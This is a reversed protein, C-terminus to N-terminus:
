DKREYLLYYNVKEAGIYKYKKADIKCDKQSPMTTLYYKSMSNNNDWLRVQYYRELNGTIETNNFFERKDKANSTCINIDANKELVIKADIFDHYFNKHRKCSHSQEWGFVIFSLLLLINLVRFLKQGGFKKLAQQMPNVFLIAFAISFYIIAPFIYYDHQKPSLELPISGSLGILLFLWFFKSLELGLPKVRAVVFIIFSIIIISSTDVLLQGLLKFHEGGGRTGSLSDMIQHQFYVSFYHHSPEYLYLALTYIAIFFLSFLYYRFMKIFSFSHSFLLFYFFPLAFPFIAVPGKSLFALLLVLTFFFAYVFDNKEEKVGKLFIYVSGLAFFAAPIELLNSELTNSVIPFALFYFGALLVSNKYNKPYLLRFILVVEFFILIGFFPGFFKDVLLTDGFLTFGLSMLYIGLPPHEYFTNFLNDTFHLHWFGYHGEALNRAMSMYVLSDPHFGEPLVRLITTIGYLLILFLYLQLKM